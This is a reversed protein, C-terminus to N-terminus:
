KQFLKKYLISLAIFILSIWFWYQCIKDFWSKQYVLEPCPVKVTRIIEQSNKQVIVKLKDGAQWIKVLVSDQYIRFTDTLLRKNQYIFRIKEIIEKDSPLYRLISDIAATSTDLQASDSINIEALYLTDSVTITDTQLLEPHKKLLKQLRKAPSCCIMSIIFIFLLYKM